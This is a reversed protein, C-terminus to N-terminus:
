PSPRACSHMQMPAIPTAWAGIKGPWDTMFRSKWPPSGFVSRGHAICNMRSDAAAPSIKELTVVGMM